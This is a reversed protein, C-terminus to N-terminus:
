MRYKNCGSRRSLDLQFGVRLRAEVFHLPRELQCLVQMHGGNMTDDHLALRDFLHPYKDEMETIILIISYRVGVM